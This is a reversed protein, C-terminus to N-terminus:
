GASTASSRRRTRPASRGHGNGGDALLDIALEPEFPKAVEEGQLRPMAGVGDLRVKAVQAPHTLERERPPHAVGASDTPREQPVEDVEELVEAQAGRGDPLLGRR